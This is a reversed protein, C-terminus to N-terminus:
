HCRADSISKSFESGSDLYERFRMRLEWAREAADPGQEELQEAKKQVTAWQRWVEREAELHEQPDRFRKGTLGPFLRRTATAAWQFHGRESDHLAKRARLFGYMACNARYAIDHDATEFETQHDAMIEFVLNKTAAAEWAQLNGFWGSQVEVQFALAKQYRFEVHKWQMGWGWRDVLLVGFIAHVFEREVESLRSDPNRKTMMLYGPAETSLSDPGMHPSPYAAWKNGEIIRSENATIPWILWGDKDKQAIAEEKLKPEPKKGKKVSMEDPKQGFFTTRGVVSLTASYGPGAKTLQFGNVNSWYPTPALGPPPALTASRISEGTQANITLGM